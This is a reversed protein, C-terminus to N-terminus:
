VMTQLHSTDGHLINIRNSWPSGAVNEKAQECTNKDIEIGDIISDTNYQAFMLSLLGTGSGIELIKKEIAIPINNKVEQAVWAGFLCADTTVKM